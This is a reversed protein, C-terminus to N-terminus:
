KCSTVFRELSRKRYGTRVKRACFHVGKVAVSKKSENVGPKYLCKVNSRMLLSFSFVFLTFVATFGSSMKLLVLSVKICVCAASTCQGHFGSNLSYVSIPLDERLCIAFFELLQMDVINTFKKLFICFNLVIIKLPPLPSVM